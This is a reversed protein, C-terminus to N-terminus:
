PKGGAKEFMSQLMTSQRRVLVAAKLYANKEKATRAEKAEQRFTVATENLANIAGNKEAKFERMVISNESARHDSYIIAGALMSLVLVSVTGFLQAQPNVTTQVVQVISAVIIASVQIWSRIKSASETLGSAQTMFFFLENQLLLRASVRRHIPLSRRRTDTSSKYRCIPSLIGKGM